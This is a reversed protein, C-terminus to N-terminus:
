GRAQLSGVRASLARYQDQNTDSFAENRNSPLDDYQITPDFQSATFDIRHGDIRNYYHWSQGVSTKLIDGGFRDHAVLATVGCQGKAPNDDTWKSSSELSWARPLLASFKVIEAEVDAM